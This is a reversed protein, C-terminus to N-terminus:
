SKMSPYDIYGRPGDTYFTSHDPDNLATGRRFREVLDANALFHKGYAILDAEGASLAAAGTRADYGGNLICPGDFASRM